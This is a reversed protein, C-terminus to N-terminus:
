NISVQNINFTYKGIHPLQKKNPILYIYFEFSHSEPDDEDFVSSAGIRYNEFDTFTKHMKKLDKKILEKESKFIKKRDKASNIAGKYSSIDSFEILKKDDPNKFGLIDSVIDAHGQEDEDDADDTNYGSYGFELDAALQVQKNKITKPFLKILKQDILSGSICYPYEVTKPDFYVRPQIPLKANTPLLYIVSKGYNKKNTKPTVYGGILYNSFDTFNKGQKVLEQNIQKKEFSLLQNDPGTFKENNVLRVINNNDKDLLDKEVYTYPKINDFSTVDYPMRGYLDAALQVQKNRVTGPFLKILSNNIKNNLENISKDIAPNKPDFLWIPRNSMGRALYGQWVYAPQALSDGSIKYYNDKETGHKLTIKGNVYLTSDTFGKLNGKKKTHDRNWIIMNKCPNKIHYPKIKYNKQSVIAYRAAYVKNTTFQTAINLLSIFLMISLLYKHKM